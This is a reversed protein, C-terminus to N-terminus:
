PTVPHDARTPQDASASAEFDWAVGAAIPQALGTAQLAQALEGASAPRRRPDSWLTSEIIEALSRPAHPCVQRLPRFADRRKVQMIEEHTNGVFPVEGTLLHYLTAGLAHVDSRGDVWDAHLGQEYSMYHSTGVAEHLGTQDSDEHLRRAVGLDALKAGQQPHLLINDPKVDRHIYQREHLYALAQAIDIGIQVVIGPSLRQERRLLALATPGAIYELVLYHRRVHPDHGANLGRVLHPHSLLRALRAERYFRAVYQPAHALHEALLKVAVHCQSTEDYSLYVESMGGRDLLRLLRYGGVSPLTAYGEGVTTEGPRIM